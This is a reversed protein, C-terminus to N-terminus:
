ISASASSCPLVSGSLGNRRSRRPVFSVVAYRLVAVHFSGYVALLVIQGLTQRHGPEQHMQLRGLTSNGYRFVVAHNSPREELLLADSLAVAHFDDFGDGAPLSGSLM